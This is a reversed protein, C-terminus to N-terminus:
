GNRLLESCSFFHFGLLPSSITKTRFGGVCFSQVHPPMMHCGSFLETHKEIISVKASMKVCLTEHQRTQPFRKQIAKKFPCWSALVVKCEHPVVFIHELHASTVGLVRWAADGELDQM